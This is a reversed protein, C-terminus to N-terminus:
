HGSFNNLKPVRVSVVAQVAIGEKRGTFGLKETTTGKISIREDAINLIDSLRVIMMKRYSSIQPSQCILTLDINIIQGGCKTIEAIAKKLFITSDADKWQLDSPPFHSGIDGAGVAGFLADTLAHLAVDADSHGKLAHNHPITVGCLVVHDGKTFAHVDFGLGTRYEMDQGKKHAILFHEAKELDELTTIKFNKESGPALVVSLGSRELVMADDTLEEDTTNRYAQLIDTYRFGQPTQARWLATRDITEKILGTTTTRKLTDVVSIAPVVGPTHSLANIVGSILAESLLPRAADHILVSDANIDELSELGLRVSDQRTKGGNVPTMTKLGALAENYLHRDEPHIVVRVKSVQPHNLFAMTAHRLIAIGDLKLYQKPTKEGFRCGRGAAM